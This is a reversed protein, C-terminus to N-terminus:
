FYGQSKRDEMASESFQDDARTSRETVKLTSVEEIVQAVTSASSLLAGTCTMDGITRFRVSAEYVQESPTRKIFENEAYIVGGREFVKRQHAFYLSPVSINRFRIYNWIDAETWNNLPFVRFHEHSAKKCNFHSMFEPRQNKPDWVGFENRFSFFREKARAKDEDRRAGGMLVDFGEREIAEMLTVSQIRNRTPHPGTEDRATGQKISDEVSAVILQLSNKSIFQDRFQITEPFNHGTDVHLIKFPIPSPWYARIALETLVISDKGSSFLIGSRQFEEGVERIIAISEAELIELHNLPNTRSTM